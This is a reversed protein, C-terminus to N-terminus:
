ATATTENARSGDDIVIRDGVSVDHRETWGYPVELVWRARGTYRTLNEDDEVPAHHVTTITGNADVFVMDIAFAMDRMVFARTEESAFVFLMGEDAALSDTESLGVYHEQATDAVAVDVTGLTTGTEDVVTVTTETSHSTRPEPGTAALARVLALLRVVALFLRPRSAM